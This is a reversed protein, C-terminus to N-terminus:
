RLLYGKLFGKIYSYRTTEIMILSYLFIGFHYKKNRLFMWNKLSWYYSRLGFLLPFSIILWHSVIIGLFYLTLVLFLIWRLSFEVILSVFNGINEKGEGDGLGYRYSEKDYAKRYTHRLWYVKADRSLEIEYGNRLLEKGFKLDDGALTLNENYGGINIWVTKYYAISRSSPIFTKDMETHYGNTLIYNARAAISTISIEDVTHNGGVIKVNENKFPAIISELWNIDYRCGFDTSAILDFKTKKIALNRGRAVNCGEEVILQISIPSREKWNELAELTGDTSGADAIVIEDPLVTQQEIGNIWEGLRAKENFVTSVLSFKIEKFAM